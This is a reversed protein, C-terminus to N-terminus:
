NSEDIKCVFGSDKPFRMFRDPYLKKVCEIYLADDWGELKQADVPVFPIREMIFRSIACARLFTHHYHIYKDPNDYITELYKTAIGHDEIIEDDDFVIMYDYGAALFKYRLIQRAKLVGLRGYYDVDCNDTFIEKDEEAYNQAVILIPLNLTANLAKIEANFVSKRAEKNKGDPLYSIIGICIKM